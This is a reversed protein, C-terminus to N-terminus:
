MKYHYFGTIKRNQAGFNIDHRIPFGFRSSNSIARTGGIFFGIHLHPTVDHINSPGWVIVDGPVPKKVRRFNNALMDRETGEVTTHLDSIMKFHFLISSVFFACSLRGNKVLDKKHGDVLAFNHRWLKAGVSAQVMSIINERTLFKM